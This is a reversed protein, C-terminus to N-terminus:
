AIGLVTGAINGLLVIVARIHIILTRYASLLLARPAHRYRGAPRCFKEMAKRMCLCSWSTAPPALAVRPSLSKVRAAHPMPLSIRQRIYIKCTRAPAVILPRDALGSIFRM